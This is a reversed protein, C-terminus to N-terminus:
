SGGGWGGSLIWKKQQDTYHQFANSFDIVYPVSFYESTKFKLHRLPNEIERLENKITLWNFSILNSNRNIIIVVVIKSVSLAERTDLNHYYKVLTM